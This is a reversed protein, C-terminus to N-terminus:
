SRRPFSGLRSSRELGCKESRMRMIRVRARPETFSDSGDLKSLLCYRHGLFLGLFVVLSLLSVVVKIGHGDCEACSILADAPGGVGNCAKCIVDKNIAMRKTAGNYLQELSVKMSSVIDEGKKKSAQRTARRAGGGFFLDFIDTPDSAPGGGELGEEGM